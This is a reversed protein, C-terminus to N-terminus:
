LKQQFCLLMDHKIFKYARFWHTLNISSCKFIVENIRRAWLYLAIAVASANRIALPIFSHLFLLNLCLGSSPTSRHYRCPSCSPTVSNRNTANDSKAPSFNYICVGFHLDGSSIWVCSGNMKTASVTWHQHQQPLQLADRIECESSCCLNDYFIENEAAAAASTSATM